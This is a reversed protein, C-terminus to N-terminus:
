GNCIWHIGNNSMPQNGAPNLGNIALRTFGLTCDGYDKVEM